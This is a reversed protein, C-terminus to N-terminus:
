QFTGSYIREVVIKHYNPGYQKFLAKNNERMMYDQNTIEVAAYQQSYGTGTYAGLYQIVFPMAMLYVDEDQHVETEALKEFLDGRLWFSGGFPALPSQKENINVRIEQEDLYEKVQAYKGCWGKGIYEQLSGYCPIPPIMMGMRPNEEFTNLINGILAENVFLNEWDSYQWSVANSYPRQQEVDRMHLIGVYDYKNHCLDAAAQILNRVFTNDKVTHLEVHETDCCMDKIARCQEQTGYVHLDICSPIGKLYRRYWGRRKVSDVFLVVAAKKKWKYDTDDQDIMYNLHLVRHVATMNELRLINDWVLDLDYQGSKRLYEYMDSSPEGCTNLLYDSYDTFFSRRKIIPCRKKQLIETSYFMLPFYSYGEYEDTQVYVDWTFGLDEFYKTFIAEYGCISELYSKPNSMNFIFDRYQYSMFLDKRLVLFHSQIHEPLYGYPLVGFPDPVVKHHKTPGWFSVDKKAMTDFMEKFPFVPGFCTYNLMVLEDFQELYKWGLYFLGERYGGVDFGVNARSIVDDSVARLKDLDRYQVYGNCVVLLFDLNEQLDELMRIVYEDVVGDKDFFLFIGCRKITQKELKM